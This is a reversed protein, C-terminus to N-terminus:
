DLDSLALIDNKLNFASKAEESVSAGGSVYCGEATQVIRSLINPKLPRLQPKLFDVICKNIKRLAKRLKSHYHNKVSNDSKNLLRAIEVWKNGKENHLSM